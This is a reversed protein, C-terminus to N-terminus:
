SDGTGTSRESRAPGSHAEIAGSRDVHSRSGLSPFLAPAAVYCNTTDHIRGFENTVSTAPDTGMWLTGADHHHQGGPRPPNPYPHAARLHRLPPPPRMSVTKGEKTMLIEFPQRNSFILAVEDAL